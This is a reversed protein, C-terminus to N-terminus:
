ERLIDPLHAIIYRQASENFLVAVYEGERGQRQETLIGLRRGAETPLKRPDQPNSEDVYLYGSQLLWRHIAQASVSKMLPDGTLEDLKRTIERASIPVPAYRLEALRAPDIAFPRTKEVKGIGGNRIITDLLESLYRMCGAVRPQNLLEEAPIPAETMPNIGEALKDVFAKTYAIKELETM